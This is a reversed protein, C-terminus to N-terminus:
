APQTPNERLASRVLAPVDSPADGYIGLLETVVAALRGTPRGNVEYGARALIGAVNRVFSQRLSAPRGSRPETQNHGIKASNILLTLQNATAYILNWDGVADRSEEGLLQLDRRLEVAREVINSLSVRIAAPTEARHGSELQYNEAAHRLALWDCNPVMRKIAREIHPPIPQIVGGPM